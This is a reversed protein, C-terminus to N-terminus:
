TTPPHVDASGAKSSLPVENLRKRTPLLACAENCGFLRSLLHRHRSIWMYVREAIWIVGPIWLILALPVALPMRLGIFRICRAGRHVRGDKAVCHIAELLGERTLGSTSALIAARSDSIPLLGVVNFWDLWTIVKMQFTCLPCSDDYLV